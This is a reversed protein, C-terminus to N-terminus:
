SGAAISIVALEVLSRKSRVPGKVDADLRCLQGMARALGGATHKRVLPIFQTKCRWPHMAIRTAVDEESGGRDLIKRAVFAKEVVRMLASVLLLNTEEGGTKYLIAIGNMAKKLDKALVADAVQFPDATPSPAVVLRVDQLTISKGPPVLLCLKRLENSLKHLDHGTAGFLINAVNAEFRRSVAKAETELWKVVENNNDWTKLKKHELVRGKQGAKSWVDPLKESRLIGVLITSVDQPSKEEIYRALVKDGKLLHANDVVVVRLDSNDFSTTECVSVVERDTMGDGDLVVSVRNKWNRARDLDRDLFWSEQGYSVLFPVVSPKPAVPM